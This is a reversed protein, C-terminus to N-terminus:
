FKCVDVWLLGFYSTQEQMDSELSENLFGLLSHWATRGGTMPQNPNCGFDFLMKVMSPSVPWKFSRGRWTAFDLLSAHFSLGESVSSFYLKSKVYLTLNHLIAYHLFSYHPIYSAFNLGVTWHDDFSPVVQSITNDLDDLLALNSRRTSDESKLALEMAQEIISNAPIIHGFTWLEYKIMLLKARLLSANADFNGGATLSLLRAWVEPKELFEHVTL